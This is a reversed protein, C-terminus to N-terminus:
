AALQPGLFADQASVRRLRGRWGRPVPAGDWRRLADLHEPLKPVRALRRGQSSRVGQLRNSTRASEPKRTALDRPRHRQEAAAVAPGNGMRWGHRAGYHDRLLLPLLKRGDGAASQARRQRRTVAMASSAVVPKTSGQAPLFRQWGFGARGAASCRVVPATAGMGGRAPAPAVANLLRQTDRAAMTRARPPQGQGLTCGLKGTHESRECAVFWGPEHANYPENQAATTRM